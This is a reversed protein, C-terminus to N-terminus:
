FDEKNMYSGVGFTVGILRPESVVTADADVLEQPLDSRLRLHVRDRDTGIVTPLSQLLMNNENDGVKGNNLDKPLMDVNRGFRDINFASTATYDEREFSNIAGADEDIIMVGTDMVGLVLVVQDEDINYDKESTGDGIWDSWGDSDHEYFWTNMIEGNEPDARIHGPRLLDFGIENDAANVGGFLKEDFQNKALSAALAIEDERQKFIQTMLRSDLDNILTNFQAEFLNSEDRSFRHTGFDRNQTRISFKSDPNRVASSLSINLNEKM